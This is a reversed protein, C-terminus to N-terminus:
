LCHSDIWSPKKSGFVNAFSYKAVEAATMEHTINAAVRATLNFGDGTSNYEGFFVPTPLPISATWKEYGQGAVTHDMYSNSIVSRHGENWNRGLYCKGQWDDYVTQNAAVFNANDIYCGFHNSDYTGPQFTDTLNSGKWAIIGGGCARMQIESDQVWLTGFGYLFDTQGAIICEHMYASGRKGIFITDQESYFGCRYFSSYSYATSLALSPGSSYQSYNNVFDVNYVRLDKNGWPTDAAVPTGSPGAGTASSNYTPAVILNATWVNDTYRVNYNALERYVTVTNATPDTVNSTVGLMTIAANQTINVQENYEGPTILITYTKSSAYPISDIAAQITTFTATSAKSGHTKTSNTSTTWNGSGDVLLTGEPCGDLINATLAQCTVLAPNQWKNSFGHGHGQSQVGQATLVM